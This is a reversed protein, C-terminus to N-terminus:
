EIEKEVAHISSQSADLRDAQKDLEDALEGLSTGIDSAYIRAFNRCRAARARLDDAKSM